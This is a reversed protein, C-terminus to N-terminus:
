NYHEPKRYSAKVLQGKPEAEPKFAKVGLNVMWYVPWCLGQFFVNVYNIQIPQPPAGAKAMKYKIEALERGSAYGSWAWTLLMAILYVILYVMLSGGNIEFVGRM